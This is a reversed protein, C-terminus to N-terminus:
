VLISDLEEKLQTVVAKSLGTDEVVIDVSTGRKLMRIAVEELGTNREFWGQKEAVETIFERLAESMGLVEKYIEKNALMATELYEGKEKLASQKM